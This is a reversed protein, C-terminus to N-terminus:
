GRLVHLVILGAIVAVPVWAFPHGFNITIGLGSRKPVLVRSDRRAVYIVGARWNSASHWERDNDIASM